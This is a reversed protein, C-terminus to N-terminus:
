LGCFCKGIGVCGEFRERLLDCRCEWFSSRVFNEQCVCYGRFCLSFRFRFLGMSLSVSVLADPSLSFSSLFFSGRSFRSSFCHFTAQMRQAIQPLLCTPRVSPSRRRIVEGRRSAVRRKRGHQLPSARQHPNYRASAAFLPTPSRDSFPRHLPPSLCPCRVTSSITPRDLIFTAQAFLPALRSRSPPSVPSDRPCTFFM